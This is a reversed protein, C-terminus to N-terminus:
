EGGKEDAPATLASVNGGRASSLNREYTVIAWVQEPSLMGEAGFQRVDDAAGNNANVGFGPMKGSGTSNAGYQKGDQTGNMVLNFHQKETLADEIGVLNPAYRGKGIQAVTAWPQGFSAGPVHCRACSAANAGAASDNLSFLLEGLYKEDETSMRQFEDSLPDAVEANANRANMMRAYLAPDAEKVVDDIQTRMEDPTLQVSWLYQIVNDIQQDTLPGGGKVGWAPMPTGPRGYTLIYRVEDVSYRYLLTDLAPAVWNATDLYNGNEDTIVYSAVGGSGEPGHCNVCQAGTEYTALGREVFLEHYHEKAGEQRGPEALWYLPLVLAVVILLGFASWLAANLKPGELEDDALYQKRNPALEPGLDLEARGKRAQAMIVFFAGIFIVAGIVYAFSRQTTMEAIM